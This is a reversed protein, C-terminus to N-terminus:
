GGGEWVGITYPMFSHLVNIQIVRTNINRNCHFKNGLHMVYADIHIDFCCAYVKINRMIFVFFRKALSISCFLELKFQVGALSPM